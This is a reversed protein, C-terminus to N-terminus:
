KRVQKCTRNDIRVMKHTIPNFPEPVKIGKNLNIQGVWNSKIQAPKGKVPPTTKIQTM